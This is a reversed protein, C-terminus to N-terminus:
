KCISDIMNEVSSLDISTRSGQNERAEKIALLTLLKAEEKKFAKQNIGGKFSLALMMNLKRHPKFETGDEMVYLSQAKYRLSKKLRSFRKGLIM